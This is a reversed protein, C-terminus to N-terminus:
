VKHDYFIKGNKGPRLQVFFPKGQSVIYLGIITLVIIPSLIILLFLAITFNIILKNFIKYM